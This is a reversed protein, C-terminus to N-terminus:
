HWKESAYGAFGLTDYTHGLDEVPIAAILKDLPM